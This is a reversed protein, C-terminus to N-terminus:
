RYSDLFVGKPKLPSMRGFRDYIVPEPDLHIEREEVIEPILDPEQLSPSTRDLFFNKQYLSLASEETFVPRLAVAGIM